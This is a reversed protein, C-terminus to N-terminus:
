NSLKAALAARGADTIAWLQSGLKPPVWEVWGKAEMRKATRLPMNIGYTNPGFMKLYAFELAEADTDKVALM